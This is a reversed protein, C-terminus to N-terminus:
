HRRGLAQALPALDARGIRALLAQTNLDAKRTLATGTHGADRASLYSVCLVGFIEDDLSLFFEEVDRGTDEAMARIREAVPEMAETVDDETLNFQALAASEEATIEGTPAASRTHHDQTSM